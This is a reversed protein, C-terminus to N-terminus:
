DIDELSESSKHGLLMALTKCKNEEKAPTESSRKTFQEISSEPSQPTFNDVSLIPALKPHRGIM